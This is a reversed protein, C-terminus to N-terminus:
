RYQAYGGGLNEIKSYFVIDPRHGSITKKSQMKCNSAGSYVPMSRIPTMLIM